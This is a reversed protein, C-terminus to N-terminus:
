SPGTVEEFRDIIAQAVSRATRNLSPYQTETACLGVDSARRYGTREPLHPELVTYGATEIYERSDRIEAKSDGTRFLVFCMREPAIGKQKLEHALRIQPNMDEKSLGTSIVVLDCVRAIELTLATARPRGDFTILDYHDEDKLADDVRTYQNVELQPSDNGTEKRWLMWESSTNQGSDMDALLVAWDAMAYERVTIRAYTSAGCGGKQKLFGIKYAM